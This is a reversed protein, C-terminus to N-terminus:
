GPPWSEGPELRLGAPPNSGLVRAEHGLVAGKVAADAAIWVRSALVSGEVRAGGGVSVGDWLVSDRTTSGAGLSSGAGVVVRGELKADAGLTVNDGVIRGGERGALDLNVDLYRQPTGIDVWFGGTRYGFVPEGQEILRPFLNHEVMVHTAPPILELVKPEFVWAGANIWTSPAEERPPKEVFRSIWGAADIAVVGFASPDEVEKLSISATARNVRHAEVMATLDLDTLIDGNMVVFTKGALLPEVLKFAGASGLPTQEVSYHLKVGFGSGDGAVARIKEALDNAAVALVVDRFGHGRLHDLAHELFPRNVIPVLCKPTRWTLPRLRTGEGGVLMVVIM